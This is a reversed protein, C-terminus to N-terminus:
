RKKAASRKGLAATSTMSSKCDLFGSMRASQLTKPAKVAVVKDDGASAWVASVAALVDGEEGVEVDDM